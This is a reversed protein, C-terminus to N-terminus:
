YHYLHGESRAHVVVTWGVLDLLNLRSKETQELHLVPADLLVVVVHIATVTILNSYSFM